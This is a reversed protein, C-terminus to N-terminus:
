IFQVGEREYFKRLVINVVVFLLHLLGINIFTSIFKEVKAHKKPWFTSPESVVV